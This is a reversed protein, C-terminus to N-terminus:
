KFNRKMDKYMYKENRGMAICIVFVPKKTFISMINDFENSDETIIYGNEM